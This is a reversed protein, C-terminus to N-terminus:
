HWGSKKVSNYTEIVEKNPLEEESICHELQTIEEELDTSHQKNKRASNVAYRVTERWLQMKLIDWYLRQDKVQEVKAVKELFNTIMIVYHKDQLWSNNM